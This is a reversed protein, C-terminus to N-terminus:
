SSDIAFNPGSHPGILISRKTTSKNHGRIINITVGKIADLEIIKNCIHVRGKNLTFYISSIVCCCFSIFKIKMHYFGYKVLSRLLNFTRKFM